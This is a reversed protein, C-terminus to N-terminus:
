APGLLFFFPPSPFLFRLFFFFYMSLSSWLLESLSAEPTSYRYLQLLSPHDLIEQGNQSFAGRSLSSSVLLSGLLARPFDRPCGRPRPFRPAMYVQAGFSVKTYLFCSGGDLGSTRM